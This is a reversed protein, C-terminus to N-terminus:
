GSSASSGGGAVCVGQGSDVEYNEYWTIASPMSLIGFILLLRWCRVDCTAVSASLSYTITSTPRKIAVVLGRDDYTM